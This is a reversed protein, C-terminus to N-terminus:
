FWDTLHFHKAAAASDVGTKAHIHHGKKGLFCCCFYFLQCTVPSLNNSNVQKQKNQKKKREREQKALKNLSPQLFFLYARSRGDRLDQVTTRHAFLFSKINEPSVTWSIPSYKWEIDSCQCWALNWIWFVKNTGRPCNFVCTLLMVTRILAPM